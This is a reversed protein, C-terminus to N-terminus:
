FGHCVALTCRGSCYRGCDECFNLSSKAKHKSNGPRSQTKAKAVGGAVVTMGIPSQNGRELFVTSRGHSNPEPKSKANGKTHEINSVYKKGGKTKRAINNEIMKEQCRCLVGSVSDHITKLLFQDSGVQNDVFKQLATIQRTVDAQTVIPSSEAALAGSSPSPAAFHVQAV